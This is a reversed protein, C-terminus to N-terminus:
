KKKGDKIKQIIVIIGLLIPTFFMLALIAMMITDLIQNTGTISDSYIKRAENSLINPMFFFVYFFGTLLRTLLTDYVLCGSLFYFGILTLIFVFGIGAFDNAPDRPEDLGQYLDYPYTFVAFWESIMYKQTDWLYVKKHVVNNGSIAITGEWGKELDGTVKYEKGNESQFLWSNKIPKPEGRYKMCWGQECLNIGELKKCDDHTNCKIDTNRAGGTGRILVGQKTATGKIIKYGEGHIGPPYLLTLTINLTIITLGLTWVLKTTWHRKKIHKILNM